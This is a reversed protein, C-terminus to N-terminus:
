NLKNPHWNRNSTPLATRPRNPVGKSSFGVIAPKRRKQVIFLARAATIISRIQLELSVLRVFLSTQIFTSKRLM